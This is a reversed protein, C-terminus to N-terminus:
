RGPIEYLFSLPGAFLMGSITWLIMASIVVVSTAKGGSLDYVEQAAVIAVVVSWVTVVLGTFPLIIMWDIIGSLGVIRVFGLFEQKDKSYGCLLHVLGGFLFLVLISFLAGVLVGALSQGPIFALAGGIATVAIGFRIANPDAAVEAMTLKNLKVIEIAKKFYDLTGAPEFPSTNQNQMSKGTLAHGDVFLTVLTPCATLKWNM